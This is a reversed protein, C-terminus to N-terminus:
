KENKRFKVYGLLKDVKKFKRPRPNKIVKGNAIVMKPDGLNKLDFIPDNKVVLIDACKGVEISGTIDDIGAIKANVLTATHLAFKSDVGCWGSFLILENYFNYHSVMTSGADTGLGVTIGYKKCLEYSKLMGDYIISSNIQAIEGYGIIEPDIDIFPRAPSLTLVVAGDNKKFLPALSEDFYSSHEISNVGCKIAVNMGEPGEVHAAVKLNKSHAYDCCAKVLEESMHLTGPHGATKGDLVGGTIMLKVLDVKESILRDIAKIAEEKTTVAQAVTGVMHGGPVGIATNAVLLRPGLLTGKVIEDRLISDFDAVGGVTRLTTVGSLITQKLQPKCIKLAVKRILFNSTILKVLNANDGLKKKKIKGSAPIHAHLNILGPVVYKGKLDIIKSEKKADFHGIKTIINDTIEISVNEQLKMNLTGDYVNANILTIMKNKMHIKVGNNNAM